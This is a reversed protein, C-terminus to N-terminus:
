VGSTSNTPDTPNTPETPDTPTTSGPKEWTLHGSIQGDGIYGGDRYIGTWGHATAGISLETMEPNTWKKM